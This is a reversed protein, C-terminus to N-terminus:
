VRQGGNNKAKLEAEVAELKKSLAEIRGDMVDIRKRILEAMKAITKQQEKYLKEAKEARESVIKTVVPQPPLIPQQPVQYQPQQPPADPVVPMYITTDRQVKMSRTDNWARVSRSIKDGFMSYGLMLAILLLLAFLMKNMYGGVADAKKRGPAARETAAEDVGDDDQEYSSRKATSAAGGTGSPPARPDLRTPIPKQTQILVDKAGRVPLPEEYYDLGDWDHEFVAKGSYVIRFPPADDILAVQSVLDIYAAFGGTVEADAGPNAALPWAYFLMLQGDPAVDMSYYPAKGQSIHQFWRQGSVSRPPASKPSEPTVDNVTFGGANVRLMRTVGPNDRMFEYLARNMMDMDPAPIVDEYICRAIATELLRFEREIRQKAPIPAAPAAVVATAAAAIIMTTIITKIM